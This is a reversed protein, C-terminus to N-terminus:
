HRRRPHAVAVVAALIGLLLAPPEPVAVTVSKGFNRKLLGFDSLDIQGDGNSDGESNGGANGFHDKLIGFDGLDVQGDGNADGALPQLHMRVHSYTEAMRLPLTFEQGDAAWKGTFLGDDEKGDGPRFQYECVYLNVVSSGSSLLYRDPMRGGRLDVVAANDTYIYTNIFAGPFVEMYTQDYAALQNVWGGFVAASSKQYTRLGSVIQGDLVTARAKGEMHVFYYFDNPSAFTTDTKFTVVEPPQAEVSQGM